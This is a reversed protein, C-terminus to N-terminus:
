VYLNRIVYPTKLYEYDEVDKFTEESYKRMINCAGNIDANFIVGKGSKYLGRKIRRGSFEYANHYVGEVYEPIPDRSLFDSKSTYAEEVFVVKIGLAEGKYALQKKLMDFPVQVFNQNNQKGINVEQKWNKIEGVVLTGVNHEVCKQLIDKSMKHFYDKLQFYRKKNLNTLRASSVRDKKTQKQLVSTYHAKDKNYKQNIAKIIGGKYLYSHGENTVLAAVNDVGLDISAVYKGQENEEVETEIMFCLLFGDYLPKVTLEKFRDSSSLNSMYLRVDTKPFKVYGDYIVVDQNTYTLCKVSSKCYKPMKPKGSFKKPDKKYTKLAQLWNKMDAVARKLCSQSCQM